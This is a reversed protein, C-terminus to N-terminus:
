AEKDLLEDIKGKLVSYQEYGVNTYYINGKSDLLYLTPVGEPAYVTGITGKIDDLGFDWDLDINVQDKYAQILERTLAATEGQSVWVNISLINVQNRTFNESVKKLEFMEQQCPPCNVGMLDLLLITGYYDSIQQPEGDLNTFRFNLANGNSNASNNICGTLPLIILLIFVLIFRKHHKQKIIM